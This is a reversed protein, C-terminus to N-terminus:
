KMEDEEVEVCCVGSGDGRVGGGCLVSWRWAVCEAELHCVALLVLRKVLPVDSFTIRSLAVAAIKGKLVEFWEVWEVGGPAM